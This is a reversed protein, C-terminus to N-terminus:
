TDQAHRCAQPPGSYRPLSPHSHHHRSQFYPSNRVYTHRMILEIRVEDFFAGDYIDCGLQALKDKLIQEFELGSAQMLQDCSRCSQASLGKVQTIKEVSPGCYADGQLCDIINRRLREESVLDPRRLVSTIDAMRLRTLCINLYLAVARYKDLTTLQPLVIRLLTCPPIDASRAIEILSDGDVYRKAWQQHKFKQSGAANSKGDTLEKM